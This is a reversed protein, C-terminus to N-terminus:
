PCQNNVQRLAGNSEHGLGEEIGSVVAAVVYTWASGPEPLQTDVYYTDAIGSARCDSFQLLVAAGADARYLNYSTAGSEAQWSILDDTMRVGHVLGDDTDCADGQMDADFDSQLVDPVAPCLDNVDLVGDNDNDNDLANDIGDGDVDLDCANGQGDRDLDVQDPNPTATCNDAVDGIGDADVDAQAPNAAFPAASVVAQMGDMARRLADTDSVDEAFARPSAEAAAEPRVDAIRIQFGEAELMALITRGMRGAGVVLVNKNQM